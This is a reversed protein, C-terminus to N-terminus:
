PLIVFRRIGPRSILRWGQAFYSFGSM